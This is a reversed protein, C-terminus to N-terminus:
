PRIKLYEEPVQRFPSLFVVFFESYGTEPGLNSGPFERIYLLLPLWEVVVNPKISMSIRLPM